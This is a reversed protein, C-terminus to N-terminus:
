ALNRLAIRRSKRRHEFRDVAARMLAQIWEENRGYAVLARADVRDLSEVIEDIEVHVAGLQTLFAHAIRSRIRHTHPGHGDPLKGSSEFASHGGVIAEGIGKTKPFAPDDM